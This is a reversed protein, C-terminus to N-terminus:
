VYVKRIVFANSMGAGSFSLRYKTTDMENAKGDFAIGAFPSFPVGNILMTNGGINYFSIEACNSVVSDNETYLVMDNYYKRDGSTGNEALFNALETVDVKTAHGEFFVAKM